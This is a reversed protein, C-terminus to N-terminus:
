SPGPSQNGGRARDVLFSFLIAACTLLMISGAQALSLGTQAALASTGGIGILLLGFVLVGTRPERKSM